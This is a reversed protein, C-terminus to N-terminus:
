KRRPLGDVPKPCACGGCGPNARKKLAGRVLLATAIVVIALAAFTQGDAPM